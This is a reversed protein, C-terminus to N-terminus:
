QYTPAECPKPANPGIPTADPTPIRLDGADPPAVSVDPLPPRVDPVADPMTDPLPALVDFKGSVDGADIGITKKKPTSDDSM